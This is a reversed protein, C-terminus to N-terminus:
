GDIEFVKAQNLDYLGCSVGISKATEGKDGTLMWVKIKADRLQQICTKVNDQLLDELGTVGLFELDQEFLEDNSEEVKQNSIDGLNKMAFMLVRLGQSAAKEMECEVHSYRQLLREKMVLDSGKVFSIVNSKGELKVIVSMRSRDSTFEM